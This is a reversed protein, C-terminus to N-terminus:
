ASSPRDRGSRGAIRPEFDPEGALRAIQQLFRRTLEDLVHRENERGDFESVDIPEGVVIRVRAPTILSHWITGDFPSGSVYCPVVPVRAKLAILAAGTRGPLLLADTTNIRGEPFMGVLGGARAYRIAAKIAATDSGRRNTPIVECARFFWASLPHSCYERAVMWRVPRRTTLMVFAPDVPSRHNCVIVGGQDAGLSLRGQVEARWLLRGMALNTLYLLRQLPTLPLRRSWVAFFVAPAIGMGALVGLALVKTAAPSLM